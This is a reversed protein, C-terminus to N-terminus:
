FLTIIVTEGDFGAIVTLEDSDLDFGKVTFVSTKDVYISVCTRGVSIIDDTKVKRERMRIAAHKTIRFDGQVLARLVRGSDSKMEENSYPM